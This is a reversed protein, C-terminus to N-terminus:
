SCVSLNQNMIKDFNAQKVSKGVLKKRKLVSKGVM